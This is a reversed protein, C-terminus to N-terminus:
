TRIYLWRPFYTVRLTLSDGRVVYDPNRACQIILRNTQNPALLPM